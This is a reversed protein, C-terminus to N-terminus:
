ISSNNKLTTPCPTPQSTHWYRDYVCFSYNFQNKEDSTHETQETLKWDQLELEPFYTDGELDVRVSTLYIREIRPLATRYIEAGGVIFVEENNQALQLAKDLSGAVLAGKGDYDAQRTVVITTRGPLLRGISEFTKRGMIIAHGMTLKKFRKLDSSLHWPLDGNRGIVRNKSMAVILSIKM